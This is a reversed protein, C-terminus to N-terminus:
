LPQHLAQTAKKRLEPRSVLNQDLTASPHPHVDSSGASRPGPAMKSDNQAGRRLLNFLRKAAEVVALPVADFPAVPSPLRRKSV